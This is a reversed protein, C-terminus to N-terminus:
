YERWNQYTHPPDNWSGDSFPNPVTGDLLGVLFEGFGMEFRTWPDTGYRPQRKFVVVEWGEPDTSDCIWFAMDGNITTAFPLIRAESLVQSRGESDSQPEERPDFDLGELLRGSPSGNAPPTRFALYENLEGGGYVVVFDRYDAPLRLGTTRALEDWDIVDGQADSMGLMVSLNSIAPHMM